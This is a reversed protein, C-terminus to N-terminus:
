RAQLTPVQLLIKSTSPDPSMLPIGLAPSAHNMTELSPYPLDTWGAPCFPNLIDARCVSPPCRSELRPCALRPKADAFM